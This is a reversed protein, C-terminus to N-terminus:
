SLRSCLTLGVQILMFLISIYKSAEAYQDFVGTGIFLFAIFVGLVFLYKVCFLGENIAVAVRNRCLMFVMM